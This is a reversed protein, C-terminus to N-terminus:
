DEPAIADLYDELLSSTERINEAARACADHAAEVERALASIKCTLAAFAIIAVFCVIASIAFIKRGETM